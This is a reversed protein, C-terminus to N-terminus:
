CLSSRSANALAQPTELPSSCVFIEKGEEGAEGKMGRM